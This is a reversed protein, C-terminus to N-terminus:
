ATLTGGTSVTGGAGITIAGTGSSGVQLNGTASVTGNAVSLTGAGGSVAGATLGGLAALTGGNVTLTGAGGQGVAVDHANWTGGASITGSGVSGANGGFVAFAGTNLAAGGTVTLFGSAGALGGSPGSFGVNLFGPISGNVAPGAQETWTTGLGTLVLSGSQGANPSVSDGGTTVHSGSRATVTAGTSSGISTSGGATLTAADLTVNTNFGGAFPLFPPSPTGAVTLTAGSLLWAGSGGFNFGIASASGTLTSTTGSANNNFNVNITADPPSAAPDQGTFFNQWNGATGLDTSVKGTWGYSGPSGPYDCLWYRFRHIPLFGPNLWRRLQCQEDRLRRRQDRCDCDRAFDREGQQNNRRGRFQIRNQRGHELENDPRRLQQWTCCPDTRRWQQLLQDVPEHCRVRGIQSSLEAGLDTTGVGMLSGTIELTGASFVNSAVTGLAEFTGLNDISAALLGDGILSHGNEVVINGADFTGSTGVDVSSNADVSLTSGSWVAMADSILIDGGATASITGRGPLPAALSGGISLGAAAVTGSNVLITGAPDIATDGAVPPGGSPSWNGSITWASATTATWTYTTGAM